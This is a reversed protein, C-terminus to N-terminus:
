NYVWVIVEDSEGGVQVTRRFAEKLGYMAQQNARSGMDSHMDFNTPFSFATCAVQHVIRAYAMGLEIGYQAYFDVIAQKIIALNSEPAKREPLYQNNKYVQALDYTASGIEGQVVFNINKTRSQASVRILNGM